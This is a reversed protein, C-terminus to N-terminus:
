GGEQECMLGGGRAWAMAGPHAQQIKRLKNIKDAERLESKKQAVVVEKNVDAAHKWEKQEGKIHLLREANASQTTRGRREEIEKEKVELKLKELKAQEKKAEMKRQGAAQKTEELLLKMQGQGLSSINVLEGNPRKFMLPDGKVVADKRRGKRRGAKKGNDTANNKGKKIEIDLSDSDPDSFNEESGKWAPQVEEEESSSDSSSTDKFVTRGSASVAPKQAKEQNAAQRKGKRTQCHHKPSQSPFSGGAAKPQM